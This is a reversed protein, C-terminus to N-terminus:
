CSSNYPHLCIEITIKSLHIFFRITHVYVTYSIKYAINNCRLKLYIYYGGGGIIGLYMCYTLLQDM